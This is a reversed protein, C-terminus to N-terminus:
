KSDPFEQQIKLLSQSIRNITDCAALIKEDENASSTLHLHLLKLAPQVRKSYKHFAAVVKKYNTEFNADDAFASPNMTLDSDKADTVMHHLILCIQGLVPDNSKATDSAYKLDYILAEFLDQLFTHTLGFIALVTTITLWEKSSTSISRLKEFSPRLLEYLDTKVESKYTMSRGEDFKTLIPGLIVPLKKLGETIGEKTYDGVRVGLAQTHIQIIDDLISNIKHWAQHNTAMQTFVRDMRQKFVKNESM